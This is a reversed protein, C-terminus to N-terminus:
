QCDGSRNISIASMQWGPRVAGENWFAEMRNPSTYRIINHDYLHM